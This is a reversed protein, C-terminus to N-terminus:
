FLFIQITLGIMEFIFAISKVREDKSAFYVGCSTLTLACILAKFPSM